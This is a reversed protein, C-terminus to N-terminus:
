MLYLSKNRRRTVKHGGGQALHPANGDSWFTGRAGGSDRGPGLPRAGSLEERLHAFALRLTDEEPARRRESLTTVAPEDTDSHTVLQRKGSYLQTEKNIEEGTLQWELRKQGPLRLPSAATVM